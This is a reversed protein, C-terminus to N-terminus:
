RHHYIYWFGRVVCTIIGSVVFSMFLAVYLFLAGQLRRDQLEDVYLTKFM